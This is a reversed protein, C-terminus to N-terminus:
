APYDGEGELAGSSEKITVNVAECGVKPGESVDGMLGEVGGYQAGALGNVGFCAFNEVTVVGKEKTHEM